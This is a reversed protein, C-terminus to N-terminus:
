QSLHRELEVHRFEYSAGSQRLVGLRYADDLFAMLRFPVRGLLAYCCRSVTYVGWATDKFGMVLGVILGLGSTFALTALAAPVLDVLHAGEPLPGAYAVLLTVFLAFVGSVSATWTAVLGIFTRRDRKILSSPTLPEELDAERPAWGFAAGGVVAFLAALALYPGPARAIEGNQVQVDVMAAGMLAGVGAPIWRWRWRLGSSPTRLMPRNFMSVKVAFGLLLSCFVALSLPATSRVTLFVYLAAVSAITWSIRRRVHAPIHHMTWWSLETGAGAQFNRHQRALFRLYREARRADCFPRSGEREGSRYVTRIFADFLHRRVAAEDPFRARECLEAGTTAPSPGACVSRCLFLMLPTRLVLGVPSGTGLEAILADWDGVQGKQRLYAAAQEPEVPKVVVGAAGALLQPEEGARRVTEAYEDTRGTLVLPHNSWGLANIQQIAQKRAAPSLEDFSDLVPIIKRTEVLVQARSKGGLHTPALQALTPEELALRSAMWEKLSMTSAHWRNLPLRVPVPEGPTRRYILTEVLRELLVTKGVGVGGLLVLRKTPVRDLLITALETGAGDISQLEAVAGPGSRSLARQRLAPLDETLAGQEQEWAISIPFPDSWVSSDAAACQQRIRTALIELAEPLPQSRASDRRAQLALALSVLSVAAVPALFVTAFDASELGGARSAFFAWVAVVATM